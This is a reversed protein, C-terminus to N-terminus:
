PVFRRKVDQAINILAASDTLCALRLILFVAHNFIHYETYLRVSKDAHPAATVAYKFLVYPNCSPGSLLECVEAVGSRLALAHEEALFHDHYLKIPRLMREARQREEASVRQSLPSLTSGPRTKSGNQNRVKRDRQMAVDRFLKRKILALQLMDLAPRDLADLPVNNVIVEFAADDVMASMADGPEASASPKASQLSGELTALRARYAVRRNQESRAAAAAAAEEAQRARRRERKALRDRRREM